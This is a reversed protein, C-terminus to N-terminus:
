SSTKGYQAQMFSTVSRIVDPFNLIRRHGLGDLQLFRADRWPGVSEASDSFPVVRDDRSHIFLAPINQSRAIDPLSIKRVQTHMAELAGIMEETEDPHLRSQEAFRRACTEYRAPAAIAVLRRCSLGSTTAQAAILAGVSHGIVAHFTGFRRQVALCAAVCAPISATEGQFVQQAAEGFFLELHKNAADSNRRQIRERTGGHAPLDFGIVRYKAKLLAPILSSFDFIQGEWGHVLLVIPGAGMDVGTIRQAATLITFPRISQQARAPSPLPRRHPTLFAIAAERARRNSITVVSAM